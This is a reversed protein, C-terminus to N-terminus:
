NGLYFKACDDLEKYFAQTCQAEVLTVDGECYTLIRRDLLNVWVVRYPYDSFANEEHWHGLTNPQRLANHVRNADTFNLTSEYISNGSTSLRDTPDMKLLTKIDKM